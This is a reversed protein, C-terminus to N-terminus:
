PGDIGNVTWHVLYSFLYSISLKFHKIIVGNQRTMGVALQILRLISDLSFYTGTGQMRVNDMPNAIM